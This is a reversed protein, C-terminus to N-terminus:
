GVGGGVGEAGKAVAEVEEGIGADGGDDLGAAGNAVALHDGGRILSVDGHDEGAFAMEPVLRVWARWFLFIDIRGFKGALIVGVFLSRVVTGLSRRDSNVVFTRRWLHAKRSTRLEFPVIKFFILVGSDNLKLIVEATM